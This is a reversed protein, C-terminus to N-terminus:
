AEHVEFRGFRPRYDGIGILQGATAIAQVLQERDITEPDYALEVTTSWGPFHPRCRMVRARGVVVGRYDVFGAAYLADLDTKKKFDFELPFRDRKSTFVGAKILPGIKYRRGGALAAALVWDVPIAPANNDDCYLGGEWEARKLAELDEDSKNRKKSIAKLRKAWAGTPDALRENHMMLPTIGQLRLKIKQM